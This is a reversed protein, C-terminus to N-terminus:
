RAPKRGVAERAVSDLLADLERAADRSAANGGPRAMPRRYAVVVQQPNVATAYVVLTFPCLVVNAPDAQM